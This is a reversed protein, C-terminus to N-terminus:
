PTSLVREVTYGRAKLLEILGQKGTFHGTGVLLMVHSM